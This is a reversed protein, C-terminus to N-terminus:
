FNYEFNFLVSSLRLYLQFIAGLEGLLVDTHLTREHAEDLIICGYNTFLPDRLCEMLLLGDTMYKLVTAQSTM